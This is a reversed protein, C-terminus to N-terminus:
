QLRELRKAALSAATTQPYRQTLETLIQKAQKKRGAEDHIFGIKLMAHSRKSSEPYDILVKEFAKLAPDFKRSVYYSEGLWYQANDAFRGNPYDRLFETLAKTAEPFKGSKLLDFADRYAQQELAPDPTSTGLAPPPTPAAPSGGPVSGSSTPASPTTALPTPLPASGDADPGAVTELSRVRKDVDLYLERQRQQLKSIEHSQLEIEGRLERVERQLGQLSQLMQLLSDTNLARELRGIRADISGSDTVPAQAPLRAPALSSALLGLAITLRRLAAAM